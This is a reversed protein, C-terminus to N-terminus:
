RIVIYKALVISLGEFSPPLIVLAAACVGSSGASAAALSAKFVGPHRAEGALASAGQPDECKKQGITEAAM